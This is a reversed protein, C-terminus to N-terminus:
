RHRSRQVYQRYLDRRFECHGDNALSSGSQHQMYATCGGRCFNRWACKRCDEVEDRRAMMRERIELARNSHLLDPAPKEMVNGLTVEPTALAPCTYVQGQSDVIATRGMPCWHASSEEQDPVFGPFSAAVNTYAGSRSPADFILFRTLRRMEEDPLAIADWHKLAAGTQNLPLVRLHKIKADDCRRIFEEIEGGSCRTLVAAITLRENIGAELLREIARWTKEFTGKGRIFNHTEASIGDLSVQVEVGIEVLRKAVVDDILLGNTGIVVRRTRESAFELLELCNPQLLPEGGLFSVTPNEFVATHDSIIEKIKETTLKPSPMVGDVIACHKCRLNCKETLYITISPPPLPKPPAAPLPASELLGSNYLDVLFAKLDESLRAPPIENYLDSLQLVLQDFSKEGDLMPLIQLTFENAAAWLAKEPHLLIPSGDLGRDIILGDVIKPLTLSVAM